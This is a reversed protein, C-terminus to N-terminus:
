DHARNIVHLLAGLNKFFTQVSKEEKKRYDILEGLNTYKKCRLVYMMM